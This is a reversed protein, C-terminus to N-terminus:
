ISEDTRLGLQKAFSKLKLKLRWTARNIRRWPVGIEEALEKEGRHLIYRGVLVRAELRSLPCNFHIFDWLDNGYQVNEDTVDKAARVTRGSRLTVQPKARIRTHRKSAREAPMMYRRRDHAVDPIENFDCVAKTTNQM